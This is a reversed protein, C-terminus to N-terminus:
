LNISDEYYCKINQQDVIVSHNKLYHTKCTTMYDDGYWFRLLKDFEKPGYLKEQEFEYLQREKMYEAPYNFWKHWWEQDKDPVFCVGQDNIGCRVIKNDINQVYFIDIFIEDDIYIRSLKWEHYIKYSYKDSLEELVKKIKDIDDYYMILDIDDDWPILGKHRISGLLTGFSIIYYLNNQDCTQSFLKICKVLERKKDISLKIHSDTYHERITPMWQSIIIYLFIMVIIIILRM